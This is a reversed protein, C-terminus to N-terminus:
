KALLRSSADEITAQLTELFIEKPIGSEIIPLIEVTVRRSPRLFSRRPWVTGSNLAVPVCAVNSAAYIYGIGSKYAPGAGIPRRTGEPFIILQLGGRLAEDVKRSLTAMVARGKSRDISIMGSRMLFLGFLPVFNLERKMVFVFRPALPVLLMIDLFSQHKSALIFGGAPLHEVGRVEVTVGCIRKLLWVSVLSWARALGRVAQASVLLLPLGLIMMVVTMFYFTINFATSRLTLM